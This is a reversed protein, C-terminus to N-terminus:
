SNTDDDTLTLTVRETGNRDLSVEAGYVRFDGNFRVVNGQAARAVIVDGVDYDELFSPVRSTGDDVHPTFTVVRRPNTRVNVHEDVLKQRLTDDSLQLDAVDELLGWKAISVADSQTVASQLGAGPNYMKNAQTDRSTQVKYDAVNHRGIGYEFIAEPQAVGLIPKATWLGINGSGDPEQPVVKWDFGDLLNSLEGICTSLKKYPGAQYTTTSGSISLPDTLIRTTGSTNSEEILQRAIEARDTLTTFKTGTNSKGVIRETFVWAQGAATVSLSTIQDNGVEESSIVPGFFKLSSDRYVKLYCEVSALQEALPNDMRVQFRAQPLTRLGFSLTRSDGVFNLVEGVPNLSLDTIIFRWAAM